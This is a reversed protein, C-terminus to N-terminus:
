LNPKVPDNRRHRSFNLLVSMLEILEFTETKLKQGGEGLEALRGPQLELWEKGAEGFEQAVALMTREPIMVM